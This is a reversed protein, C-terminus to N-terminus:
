QHTTVMMKTRKMRMMQLDISFISNFQPTAQSSPVFYGAIMSTARESQITGAISQGQAVLERIQLFTQTNGDAAAEFGGYQSMIEPLPESIVERISIQDRNMIKSTKLIQITSEDDPQIRNQKDKLFSNPNLYRM